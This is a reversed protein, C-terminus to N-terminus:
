VKNFFEYLSPQRKKKVLARAFAQSIKKDVLSRTAPTGMSRIIPFNRRSIGLNPFKAKIWNNDFPFPQFNGFFYRGGAGKGAHLLVPRGYRKFCRRALRKTKKYSEHQKDKLTPHVSKTKYPRTSGDETVQHTIGLIDTIWPASRHVNEIVWTDPNYILIARLM